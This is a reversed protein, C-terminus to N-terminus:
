QELDCAKSDILCSSLEKFNDFSFDQDQCTGFGYTAFAFLMGAGHAHDCDAQTDGVYLPNILSFKEKLFSLNESKSAYREGQSLLGEFLHTTGTFSTFNKLGNTSCNSLMFLRFHEKLHRLGEIVDPYIVGGLSPMMRNESIELEKLFEEKTVCFDDGVLHRMIDDLSMGMFPVLQEGTFETEIGFSKCTYNWIKAYSSTANWLTGDMDFILADINKLSMYTKM